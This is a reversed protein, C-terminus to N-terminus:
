AHAQKYLFLFLDIIKQGSQRTLDGNTLRMKKAMMTKLTAIYDPESMSVWDNLSNIIRQESHCATCYKRIYEYGRTLEPSLGRTDIAENDGSGITKIHNAAGVPMALCTMLGVAIVLKYIMNFM